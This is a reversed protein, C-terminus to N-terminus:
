KTAPSALSLINTHGLEQLRSPSLEPLPFKMQILKNRAVESQTAISYLEPLVAQVQASTLDHLDLTDLIDPNKTDAALDMAILLNLAPESAFAPQFRFTRVQSFFKKSNWPDVRFSFALAAWAAKPDAKNTTLDTVPYSKETAQWYAEAAWRKLPNKSDGLAAALEGFTPLGNTPEGIEVEWFKVAGARPPLLPNANFIQYPTFSAATPAEAFDVRIRFAFNPNGICCYNVIERASHVGGPIHVCYDFNELASFGGTEGWSRKGILSNLPLLVGTRMPVLWSPEQVRIKASLIQDFAIRKPYVWIIGTAPDQSYKFAPYAAMLADLVEKGTTRDQDFAFEASYDSRNLYDMYSVTRILYDYGLQPLVSDLRNEHLHVNTLVLSPLSKDWNSSNHWGETQGRAPISLVGLCCCIACALRASRTFPKMGVLRAVCNLFEARYKPKRLRRVEISTLARM